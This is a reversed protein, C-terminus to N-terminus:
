ILKNYKNKLRTKIRKKHSEMIEGPYNVGYKQQCTEQIHNRWSNSRAEKSKQLNYKKIYHYLTDSSINLNNAIERKTKNLLIYERYLYQSFYYHFLLNSAKMISINLVKSINNFADSLKILDNNSEELQKNLKDIENDIDNHDIDM